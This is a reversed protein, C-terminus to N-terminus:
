ETALRQLEPDDGALASLVQYDAGAQAKGLDV